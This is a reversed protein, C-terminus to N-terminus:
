RGLRAENEEFTVPPLVSQAAWPNMTHAYLDAISAPVQVPKGVNIALEVGNVKFLRPPYGADAGRQRMAQLARKDDEDPAIIIGVRPEAAWAAMIRDRESTVSELPQQKALNEEAQKQSLADASDQGRQGLIAMLTRVQVELESLKASDNTQELEESEDQHKNGNAM